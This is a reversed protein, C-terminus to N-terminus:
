VVAGDDRALIQPRRDISGLLELFGRLEGHQKTISRNPPEILCLDVLQFAYKSVLSRAKWSSSGVKDIGVIIVDLKAFQRKALEATDRGKPPRDRGHFAELVVSKELGTQLLGTIPADHYHVAAARGPEGEEAVLDCESQLRVAPGSDDDVARDAVRCLD